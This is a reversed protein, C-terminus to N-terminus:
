KTVTQANGLINIPATGSSIKSAPLSTLWSPNAYSGTTYVGNTVTEANGTISIGAMGSSLKTPDLNTLGSGSGSFSTASMAGNLTMNGNGTIVDSVTLDAGDGLLPMLFLLGWFGLTILVQTEGKRM